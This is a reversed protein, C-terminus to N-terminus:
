KKAPPQIQALEAESIVQFVRVVKTVGGVSRALEAARAAERETVIGMLYVTGRETVVKIANSQLDKADIFTAKVKSTLVGDNTRSTLSSNGVLALENVTSRVNEIRAIAQEVAQKDAESPVEGTILVSRNYSTANVHGREGIAERVRTITKLEIAEDEVQAGGTRRDTVAFATGVMAGGVLIPAACGAALVSGALAAMLATLRLARPLDTTLRTM